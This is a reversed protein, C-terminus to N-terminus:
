RRGTQHRVIALPEAYCHGICGVELVRWSREGATTKRFAELVKEAGAAKGCTATGVWVTPSAGDWLPSWVADARTRLVGLFASPSGQPIEEGLRWSALPSPPSPASSGSPPGRDAVLPHGDKAELEANLVIGHVSTPDAKAHIKEGDLVVPALTCCGVCAVRDLSFELDATTQGSDIGLRRRLEDLLIDSGKLHCATGCCVRVEHRGPPQFRFQDFFTAVGWVRAAPVGTRESIRLMAERSLYGEARQAEQLAAILRGTPETDSSM